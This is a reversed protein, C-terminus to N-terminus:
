SHRRFESKKGSAQRNAGDKTKRADCRRVM